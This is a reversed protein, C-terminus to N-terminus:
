NEKYSDKILEILPSIDEQIFNDVPLRITIEKQNGIKQLHKETMLDQLKGYYFYEPEKICVYAVIVPVKKQLSYCANSSSIKCPIMNSRKLQTIIKGTGKIQLLGIKGTPTGNDFLEILADIGYDRETINRFLASGGNYRNIRTRLYDSAFTEINHSATRKSM